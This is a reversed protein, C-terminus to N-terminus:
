EVLKELSWVMDQSDTLPETLCDSSVSCLLIGKMRPRREEWDSAVDTAFWRGRLERISRGRWGLWTGSQWRRGIEGEVGSAWERGGGWFKM